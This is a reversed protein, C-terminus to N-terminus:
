RASRTTTTTPHSTEVAAWWADAICRHGLPTPHVGDAAVAAAGDVAARRSLLPSLSVFTASVAEAVRVIAARRPDLDQGWSFQAEEVPVVFPEVLVVHVGADALPGVLELYTQEFSDVPSIIGSDYRRWTDNIGVAVSVMAPQHRLVDTEWRRALDALTDGGVGANVLHRGALPGDALMRVWGTGLDDPDGHRGWETISDGVFVITTM